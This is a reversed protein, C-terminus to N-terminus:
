VPIGCIRLANLIQREPRLYNQYYLENAQQMQGILDPSHSLTDVATLCSEPDHYSLYNIGNEFSGPLLYAPEECVIARAAAVYEGTKWGISKELGASGICIDSRKMLKIYNSKLTMHMPLVIDPCLAKSYSCPQIGGCFRSGYVNKLERCIQIRDANIKEREAIMLERYAKEESAANPDIRVSSPNWLRAM